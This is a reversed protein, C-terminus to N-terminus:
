PAEPPSPPPSTPVSGGHNTADGGKLIALAAAPFIVVSLLGAAIMAAAAAPSVVGLSAGIQTAAVIFPLSTAQLLGSAIVERRGFLSRYLVAPAGRVVLLALLFIPVRLVTAVDSFLAGADFTLGSAVFFVPIVFGYGIAELKVHFTPHAMTTRDVARLVVGAMFAGLITELGFREAIAVIGVLLLVAGRVRIQATTDALRDIVATVRTSRGARAVAVGVAAVVLAFGGLLILKSGVHNSRGSFFLSLLIVAAFDGLTAAAIVLQGFPTASQGADKLIPVVLGLSTALLVIGVFLPSRVQGAAKLGLGVGLGLAASALLGLGTLRATRGRLREVDVELGALFLLFALGVVALVAVPVDASAWGLVSPGLVIGLLIEVVVAPIRLRPLFGLLLPAAFAVTVVIVLNSFTVHPM